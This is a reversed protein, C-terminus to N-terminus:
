DSKHKNDKKKEYIEKNEKYMWYSGYSMLLMIIGLIICIDGDIMGHQIVGSRGATYGESFQNTFRLYIGIALIIIGIILIVRSATKFSNM